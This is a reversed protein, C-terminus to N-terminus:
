FCSTFSIFAPAAGAEATGGWQAGADDVRVVWAGAVGPDRGGHVAALGTRECHYSHLAWLTIREETTLAVSLLGARAAHSKEQDCFPLLAAPSGAACTREAPLHPLPPPVPRPHPHPHSAVAMVMEAAAFTAALGLWSLAAAM